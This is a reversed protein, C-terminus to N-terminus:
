TFSIKNTFSCGYSTGSYITNTIPTIHLTRIISLQYLLVLKYYKKFRIIYMLLIIFIFYLHIM